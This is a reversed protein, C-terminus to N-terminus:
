EERVIFVYVWVVGVLLITGVFPMLEGATMSFPDEPLFYYWAYWLAWLGTLFSFARIKGFVLLLLLGAAVPIGLRLDHLVLGPDLGLVQDRLAPIIHPDVAIGKLGFM